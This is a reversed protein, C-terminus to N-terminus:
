WRGERARRPAKSPSPSDALSVPPVAPFVRHVLVDFGEQRVNERERAFLRVRDPSPHPDGEGLALHDERQLLRLLAHPVLRSVGAARQAASANASSNCRRLPVRMPSCKFSTSLTM